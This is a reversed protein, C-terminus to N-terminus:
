DALLDDIVGDARGFSGDISLRLTARVADDTVDLSILSESWLTQYRWTGGDDAAFWLDTAYSQLLANNGEEGFWEEEFWSRALIGWRAHEGDADLVEVWRFDKFLVFEVQLLANSREAHNRTVLLDCTRDLFCSPDDLAPFTRDYFTASAEADTQDAQIMLLANDEISHRSLGGIAVPLCADLPRDPRTIDTVDADTLNEPEFSRDAREGDLPLTTLFDVMNAAGVQMVRPDENAHERFLYRSLDNLETPAEPLPACGSLVLLAILLRPM